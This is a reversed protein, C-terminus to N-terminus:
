VDELLLLQTKRQKAGVSPHKPSQKTSGIRGEMRHKNRYWLEVAEVYERQTRYHQALPPQALKDRELVQESKQMQRQQQDWAKVAMRFSHQTPYDKSVPYPSGTDYPRPDNRPRAM